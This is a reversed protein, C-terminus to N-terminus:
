PAFPGPNFDDDDDDYDDDDLMPASSTLKPLKIKSGTDHYLQTGLEKNAYEYFSPDVESLAEAVKPLQFTHGYKKVYNYFETPTMGSAKYAHQISLPHVMRWDSESRWMIQFLQYLDISSEYQAEQLNRVEKLILERLTKRSLKM